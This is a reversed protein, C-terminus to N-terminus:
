GWDGPVCFPVSKQRADGGETSEAFMGDDEERITACRANSACCTTSASWIVSTGNPNGFLFSGM